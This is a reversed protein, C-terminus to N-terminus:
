ESPFYENELYDNLGKAIMRSGLYDDLGVSATDNIHREVAWVLAMLSECSLDRASWTTSKKYGITQEKNEDTLNVVEMSLKAVGDFLGGNITKVELLYSPTNRYYRMVKIPEVFTITKDKVVNMLKCLLMILRKNIGDLEKSINNAYDNNM